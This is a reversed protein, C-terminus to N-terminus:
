RSQFADLVIPWGRLYDVRLSPAERGLQKWGEQVIRLETGDGLPLMDMEIRFAADESRGPYWSYVLRSPPQWALVEGWTERTGDDWEAYIQGGVGAEFTVTKVRDEGLSHTEVPWWSAIGATYRQFAAEPPRHLYVTLYLPAFRTSDSDHMIPLRPDYSKFPVLGSVSTDVTRETAVCAPVVAPAEGALGTPASLALAALAIPRVRGLRWRHVRAQFYM